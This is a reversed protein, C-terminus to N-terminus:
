LLSRKARVGGPAVRRSYTFVADAETLGPDMDAEDRGGEEGREKGEKRGGDSSEGGDMVSRRAM